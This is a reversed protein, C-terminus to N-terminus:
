TFFYKWLMKFKLIPSLPDQVQLLNCKRAVTSTLCEKMYPNFIQMEENAFQRSPVKGIKIKPQRNGVSTNNCLTSVLGKNCANYINKLLRGNIKQTWSTKQMHFYKVLFQKISPSQSVHQVCQIQSIQISWSQKILLFWPGSEYLSQECACFLDLIYILELRRFKRIM